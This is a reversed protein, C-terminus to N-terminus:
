EAFYLYPQLVLRHQRPLATSSSQNGHYELLLGSHRHSQTNTSIIIHGLPPSTPIFLFQGNAMTGKTPPCNFGFLSSKGTWAAQPKLGTWRGLMIKCCGAQFPAQFPSHRQKAQSPADAVIFQHVSTSALFTVVPPLENVGLFLILCADVPHICLRVLGTFAKLTALWWAVV